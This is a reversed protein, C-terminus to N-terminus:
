TRVDAHNEKSRHIRCDRVYSKTDDTFIAQLVYNNHILLTFADITHAHMYYTISEM